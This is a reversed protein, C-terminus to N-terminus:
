RNQFDRRVRRRRNVNFWDQFMETITINWWRNFLLTGSVGWFAIIFGLATSIYTDRNFFADEEEDGDGDGDGPPKKEDDEPCPKSVLPPGCLGPNGMFTASDFTQLHDSWPIEGSLNNFSLHLMGLRNLQSLSPPIRGSLKNRSLDLFNLLGLQGVGHPISGVLNNRSLNLGLLGVLSMLERPIEGSLNNSSLDIAKLLGLVNSYKVKMRKWMIDANDPFSSSDNRAIEFRFHWRDPDEKSSLMTFYKFCKPIPGSIQNMSIDLVQIKTLHCLRSPLEGYLKNSKLILVGLEPMSNGLWGPIKGSFNNEGLDLIKLKRCKMLSRPIEGRFSNNRLHLSKVSCVLDTTSKSIEGSFNNNAFNLYYLSMLNLFCYEPIEGSLLNNSIDLVLVRDKLHCFNHITGSFRNESLDLNNMNQPLLPLPGSLENFSLDLTRLNLKSSSLDPLVGHIRNYSMNISNCRKDVSDWFWDPITDSIRANSIDVNEFKKQTQLWKPFHPGVKCDRLKLTGLQFPPNWSSSINVTLNSNSSLDLIILRSLNFLHAESILGELHNSPISLYQLMSLYGITETLTGDFMNMGLGLWMLSSCSALNPVRGSFKNRSAEFYELNPLRLNGRLLSGNLKNGEISLTKLFSFRSMDPLPGSLNNNALFLDELMTSDRLWMTLDRLQGNLNATVLRLSTLSSLNNSAQPFGGGLQNNSLDLYSLSMLNGLVDFINRELNNGSLDIYRLSSSINKLSWVFAPTSRLSNQYLDLVLLSNSANLVPTLPTLLQCNSLHIEKLAPLKNIAHLWTTARQLNANSLDLYELSRFGSLWDLNTDILLSNGGLDLLQLISLNGLNHPILGSFYSSHLKLHHLNGLSGIFEPIQIENFHNFSLDLYKLHPLDLLSQSINGSLRAVSLNKSGHLDIAVVHYTQNDCLIGEWDCCDIGDKWASLRGANDILEAKIKLLAMCERPRFKATNNEALSWHALHITTIFFFILILSM